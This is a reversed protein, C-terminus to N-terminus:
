RAGRRYSRMAGNIVASRGGPRALMRQMSQADFASVNVDGHYNHEESFGGGAGAMLPNAAPNYQKPVIAEGQHIQAIQDQPVFNTGTDLSALGEYAAVGAFAASAAIPALIWGVYPIQAVSAYVGSFAKAADQMVTKSGLSASTAASSAAASATSSTRAANGAVTASTQVSQSTATATAAQTQAFLHSLLGGQEISKQANGTFMYTTLAKLDDTIEKEVLQGSMAMLSQTLSKRKGLLDSVLTGEAQEIENIGGKWATAQDKAGKQDLAAMEKLAQAHRNTVETDFQEGFAVLETMNNQYQTLFQDDAAIEKNVAALKLEVEKNMAADFESTNRLRSEAAAADVKRQEAIIEQNAKVVVDMTDSGYFQQAAAAYLQLQQLRQTTGDKFAEVGAKINALGQQAIETNIREEESAAAKAAAVQAAAAQAAQAAAEGPDAGFAAAQTSATSEEMM